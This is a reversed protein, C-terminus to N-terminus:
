CCASVSFCYSDSNPQAISFKNNNPKLLVYMIAKYRSRLGHATCKLSKDLAQAIKQAFCMKASRLSHLPRPLTNLNIKAPTHLPSYLPKNIEGSIGSDVELARVYPVGTMARHLAHVSSSCNRVAPVVPLALIFYANPDDSFAHVGHSCICRPIIGTLYRQLSKQKPVGTPAQIPCTWTNEHACTACTHVKIGCQGNRPAEQPDLRGADM